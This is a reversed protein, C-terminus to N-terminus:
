FFSKGEGATKILGYLLGSVVTRGAFGLPVPQRLITDMAQELEAQVTHGNPQVQSGHFATGRYSFRIFYRM